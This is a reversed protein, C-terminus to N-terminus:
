FFTQNVASRRLVRGPSVPTLGSTTTGDFVMPDQRAARYGPVSTSESLAIEIDGAPFSVVLDSPLEPLRISRTGPPAVFLWGSGSTGLRTPLAGRIMDEDINTSDVTWSVTPRIPDSDRQPSHVFPLLGMSLDSSVQLALPAALTREIIRTRAGPYGLKIFSNVADGLERYAVDLEFTSSPGNAASASGPYFTLERDVSTLMWMAQTAPDSAALQLSLHHAPPTIWSTVHLPTQIAQSLSVDEFVAYVLPAPTVSNTPYVLVTSKGDPHVCFTTFSLTLAPASGTNSGGGDCSRAATTNYAQVNAIPQDVVIQATMTPPTPHNRPFTVWLEDGPEVAFVTIRSAGSDAVTVAGCGPVDIQGSIGTATVRKFFAGSADHSVLTLGTSNNWVTVPGAPTNPSCDHAAPADGSVAADSNDGPADSSGDSPSSGSDGGGCATASVILLWKMLRGHRLMRTTDLSM